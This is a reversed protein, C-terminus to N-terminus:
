NEFYKEFNQAFKSFKLIKLRKIKEFNKEIIILTFEHMNM